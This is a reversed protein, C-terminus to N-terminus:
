LNITKWDGGAFKWAMIAAMLVLYILASAWIGVLGFNFTLGLAYALPVLCTIHLVFEVKMVFKTNGAGYLAQALILSTSIFVTSLAMLRLSTRGAEVVAQDKSFVGIVMEPFLLTFLGFVAMIYVGIRVSEWGYREALDPREGGLSQSVLTATATGFAICTMFAISMADMIVKTAAAFISPRSMVANLHLDGIM